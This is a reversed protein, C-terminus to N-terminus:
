RTCFTPEREAEVRGIARVAGLVREVHDSAQLRVHGPGHGLALEGDQHVVPSGEGAHFAGADCPVDEAREPQGQRGSYRRGSVHQLSAGRFSRTMPEAARDTHTTCAATPSMRNIAQAFRDLRRSARASDRRCSSAIRTATPALRTRSVCSNTISPKSREM